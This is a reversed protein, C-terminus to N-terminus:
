RSQEETRVSHRRDAAAGSQLWGRRWFFVVFVVAMLLMVSLAFPYGWYWRLEPMNWPSRDPDFNMGYIGAVFTLPMFVTAIMTMIKMIENLRQSVSSLYLDVLDSAVERYTELLEVIRITHDHCDRLYVRTAEAVVPAPDRSLSALLDRLPWVARRLTLFERKLEHLAAISRKQPAHLIEAELEELTEGRAELIPFYSDVLADLLSYALYDAGLQRLRGRNSRLRDRVPELCDGPLGEQFTIVFGTGFFISLQETDLPPGARPMRAVLFLHQEYEDVKARQHVNIVDELALAHLGFLEGLEAVVRADGVGEVNIWTVAWEARLPRIDAVSALRGEHMGDRGGFSMAYLTPPAAHPDSVLTGPPAGVPTRRRTRHQRHARKSM